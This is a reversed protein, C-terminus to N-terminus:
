PTGLLGKLAALHAQGRARRAAPDAPQQDADALAGAPLEALFRSPECAITEGYRRRQRARSFTLTRQARTIGVYALRREEEISDAEIAGRHPLLDEEMGVLFVHPFELGKAAHLTMLNVRGPGDGTGDGAAEAREEDQRELIDLLTLHAVLEGLDRPQDGTQGPHRASRQRPGAPQRQALDDLWRILEEVHGTRREAQARSSAQQHLWGPYDIAELLARIAAVPATRAQRAHTALCTALAALRQRPRESLTAALALDACAALLGVGRNAAVAALRELTAPGIERRPVNVIRLFATDDAPNALLRLYAMVDKVEARAFFSTGGSLFYPIALARLAQEFPRAQHNGRYLIACDSYRQGQTLRAHLIEGAVREAEHTEDRCVLLRAPEGPGLASWLRKPFLHPNHAILGNALALIRASSRYNQELTIVTLDPYDQRLRALNEPRAGRWAYISQDDDGVVTFAGRPGALLRVLAYQAGNSDQYEDVLLYRLRAQWAERRAADMRLLAVPRLILDDFDVANYARLSREYDRYLAALAAEHDDEAAATARAPDILDNKWQSIRALAAAPTVAEALPHDHLHERLLTEGDAPDFLSFGTRLGAAGAERRLLELGFTHFTAVRLGRGARGPLLRGLRARMERAAKNTFTLACVSRAPLGGPGLLWAIKHTIVRTKGSGAGAIVLLPSGTHRVAEIQTPNLGHM